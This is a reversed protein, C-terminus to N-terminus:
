TQRTDWQPDMPNVSLVSSYAVMALSPTQKVQLSLHFNKVKKEYWLFQNGPVRQDGNTGVIEGNEVTWFSMDNASWGTFDKQNFFTEATLSSSFLLALIFVSSLSPFYIRKM